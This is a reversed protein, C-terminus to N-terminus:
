RHGVKGHFTQRVRLEEAGPGGRDGESKHADTQKRQRLQLLTDPWRQSGRQDVKANSRGYTGEDDHPISGMLFKRGKTATGTLKEIWHPPVLRSVPPTPLNRLPNFFKPYVILSWSLGLFAQALFLVCFARAYSASIFSRPAIYITLVSGVVSSVAFATWPLGM